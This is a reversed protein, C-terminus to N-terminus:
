HAIGGSVVGLAEMKQSQRLQAELRDREREAQKRVTIDTLVTRIATAGKVQAAISDLQADFFTGDKRKLVLYCTQATTTELVKQKHLYFLDQSEPNIFLTLPKKVLLNREIGLLGCATLNARSVLGVKDFTLYGVPAFDYIEAYEARSEELQEQARRLDENQMELEIQHVSLEQLLEKIDTGTAPAPKEPTESLLKEAKQRLARRKSDAPM